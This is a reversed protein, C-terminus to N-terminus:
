IPRGRDQWSLKSHTPYKWMNTKGCCLFHKPVQPSLHYGAAAKSIVSPLKKKVVLCYLLDDKNNVLNTKYNIQLNSYFHTVTLYYYYYYGTYLFHDRSSKHVKLNSDRSKYYLFKLGQETWMQMQRRPDKSTVIHVTNLRDYKILTVQRITSFLVYLHSYM